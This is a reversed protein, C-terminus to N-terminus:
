AQLARLKGYGAKDDENSISATEQSAMWADLSDKRFLVRNGVGRIHPIKRAKALELLKWYSIGIYEAAEKAKMTARLAPRIANIADEKLHEKRRAM